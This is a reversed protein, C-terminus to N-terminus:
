QVTRLMQNSTFTFTDELLLFSFLLDSLNRYLGPYEGDGNVSSVREIWFHWSIGVGFKLNNCTILTKVFSTSTEKSVSLKSNEGDLTSIENKLEGCITLGSMLDSSQLSIYRSQNQWDALVMMTYFYM